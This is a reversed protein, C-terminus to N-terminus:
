SKQFLRLTQGNKLKKAKEMMGFREMEERSFPYKANRSSFARVPLVVIVVAVM